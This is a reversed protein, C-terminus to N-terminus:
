KRELEKLRAAADSRGPALEIAKRYCSKARDTRGLSRCADGLGTWAAASRPYCEVTYELVEAARDPKKEGLLTRGLDRLDEEPIRGPVGYKELRSESRARVEAFTKENLPLSIRWGEFLLRLGELLSDAPVHGGNGIVALRCSLGEPALSDIKEKLEGNGRIITPLDREGMVLILRRPGGQFDRIMQDRKSLFTRVMLTASAAIGSDALGPDRLLGYVATFGTNSTGYLVRYRETRYGKEVHPVLENRIFDLYRDARGGDKSGDPYTIEEPFIDKSRDTNKIGVVIFDPMEELQAAHRLGGLVGSNFNFDADMMYLVPYAGSTEAYRDPLSVWIEREEGLRASTIRETRVPSIPHGLPQALVQPGAVSLLALLGLAWPWSSRSTM